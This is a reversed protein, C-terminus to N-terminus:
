PQTEQASAAPVAEPGPLHSLWRANAQNIIKVVARSSITAGTIADVEHPEDGEGHKALVVQPQVALDTFEARFTEDKFIKDGLGPTERSELVEMGTIRRRVPDYGYLLSITDQFGAGQAPIAYGVFNGRADYAAFVGEQKDDHSVAASGGALVLKQMRKSGPVVKLVAARLAAARNATIRPLTLEYIGVLALGSILGALGLTLALRTSSPERASGAGAPATAAEAPM